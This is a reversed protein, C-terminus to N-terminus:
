HEEVDQVRIYSKWPKSFDKVWNTRVLAANHARKKDPRHRELSIDAVEAAYDYCTRCRPRYADLPLYASRTHSPTSSGAKDWVTFARSLGERIFHTGCKGFAGLRRQIIHEAGKHVTKPVSSGITFVIEPLPGSPM